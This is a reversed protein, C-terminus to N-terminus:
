LKSERQGTGAGSDASGSKGLEEMLLMGKAGSRSGDETGGFVDEVQREPWAWLRQLDPDLRGELADVVKDGLM